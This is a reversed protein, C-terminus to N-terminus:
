VGAYAREDEPIVKKRRIMLSFLAAPVLASTCIAWRSLVESHNVLIEFLFVGPGVWAALLVLFALIGRRGLALFAGILGLPAGAMLFYTANDLAIAHRYTDRVVPNKKMNARIQAMSPNTQKDVESRWVFGILGSGGAGVLAFVLVLWRM